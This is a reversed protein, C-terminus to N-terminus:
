FLEELRRPRHAGIWSEYDTYGVGAQRGKVRQLIASIEESTRAKRDKLWHFIGTLQQDVRTGTFEFVKQYDADNWALFDTLVINSIKRGHYMSEKINGRGTLANGLVFVHDYGALRGSDEDALDFRDGRHPVGPISEPLSGIASVITSSSVVFDSAPIELLRDDIVETRRFVLGSLGDDDTTFAIPTVNPHFNFRYKMLFGAMLKQRVDHAKKIEAPTADDALPSLPMDELSRRYFLTCGKIGLDALTLGLDDLTQTIGSRELTFIGVAQDREALARQVTDIMVLKAMDLSALGGGVILASDTLRYDPGDYAAEHKHNFWYSLANQYYLGRNEYEDIHALPLKRDLGAGTALLVASFGWERAIDPFSLDRGLKTQPVFYVHDRNLKDDIKAEEQDRLKYHWNPLGDEIKGYPLAQQDFVVCYIGREALQFAAEAGSVAGGFIAVVHGPHLM